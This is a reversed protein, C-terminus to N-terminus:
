LFINQLDTFDFVVIFNPVIATAATTNNIADDGITPLWCASAALKHPVPKAEGSLKLPM